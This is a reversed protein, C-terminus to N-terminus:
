PKRHQELYDDVAEHASGKIGRYLDDEDWADLPLKDLEDEYGTYRHRIHARAAVARGAVARRAAHGAARVLLV